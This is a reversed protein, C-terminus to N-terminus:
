DHIANSSRPAWTCHDSGSSWAWRGSFKFGGEVPEVKGMPAYSSSIRTHINDGWVDEQARKDMLAIQFAHVAVIGSAWATSMCAEAIAIHMKFFDQPDLEFGGYAKPQLALFFGAEQLDDITAQPVKRNEKAEAARAKIAPQLAVIKQYISEAISSKDESFNIKEATNVRSEM